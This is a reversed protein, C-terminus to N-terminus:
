YLQQQFKDLLEKMDEKEAATTSQTDYVVEPMPSGWNQLHINRARCIHKKSRFQEYIERLDSDGYMNGDKAYPYTFIIFKDKIKKIGQIKTDSGYNRGVYLTDFNAYKDYDFDFYKSPKFKLNYPYIKGDQARYIKECVRYGYVMGDLASDLTRLFTYTYDHEYKSAGGEATIGLMQKVEDAIEIDKDEETGPVVGYPVALILRKKLNVGFNVRDDLMMLDYIDVREGLNNLLTDPNELKSETASSIDLWRKLIEQPGPASKLLSLGEQIFSYISGL